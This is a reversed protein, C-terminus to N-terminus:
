PLLSVCSLTPCTVPRPEVGDMPSRQAAFPLVLGHRSWSQSSDQSNHRWVRPRWGKCRGSGRGWPHTSPCPCRSQAWAPAPGVACPRDTGSLSSIGSAVCVEDRGKTSPLWETVSAARTRRLPAPPPGWPPACSRARLLVRVPLASAAHDAPAAFDRETFRFRGCPRRPRMERAFAM